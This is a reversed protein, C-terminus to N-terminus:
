WANLHITILLMWGRQVHGDFYAIQERFEPGFSWDNGQIEALGLALSAMPSWASEEVSETPTTQTIRGRLDAGVVATLYFALIDTFPGLAGAFLATRHRRPKFPTWRIGAGMALHQEATNTPYPSIYGSGIADIEEVLHLGHALRQGLQFRWSSGGTPPVNGIRSVGGLGFAVGLFSRPSSECRVCSPAVGAASSRDRDSPALEFPGSRVSSIADILVRTDGVPQVTEAVRAVMVIAQDFFSPILALTSAPVTFTGTDEVRCMVLVADKARRNVAGIIILIQAGQAPTWTATYGTRSLSTPPAYGALAAPATVSATFAPLDTGGKAEVTITTGDVFAPDQVPGLHKYTIGGDAPSEDLTIPEATGTITIRGASRSVRPVHRRLTCPGDSDIARGWVSGDAFIADASSGPTGGDIGRAVTIRGEHQLSVLAAPATPQTQAEAYPTSLLGVCGVVLLTRGWRM